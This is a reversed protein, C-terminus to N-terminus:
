PIELSVDLSKLAGFMAIQRPLRRLANGSAKIAVIDEIEYYPIEEVEESGQSQGRSHSSSASSSTIHPPTDFEGFSDLNTTLKNSPTSPISPSPLPDEIEDESLGLIRTWVERPLQQLGMNAINLKGSRMAKSILSNTTRGFIDGGEGGERGEAGSRAFGASCGDQSSADSRSRISSLEEGLLSGDMGNESESTSARASAQAARM